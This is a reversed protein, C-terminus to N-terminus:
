YTFVIANPLLRGPGSYYRGNYFLATSGGADLNLASSAGLSKFVHAFELMTVNRAIVITYAGSKIGIGVKTGRAKQKTSLGSQNDDIQINGDRLLGPHNVLGALLGGSFDRANQTYQPGSSNAFILSRSNWPLSYSNIWKSLRSNYVPFDFSNKKSTCEAYTSPCFYTGNVGAFGRNRTVFDRLSLTPCNDHCDYDSATDTVMKAGPLSLLTVQFTGKPTVVSTKVPGSAVGQVSPLPSPARPRILISYGGVVLIAVILLIVPSAFGRRHM